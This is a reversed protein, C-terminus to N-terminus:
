AKRLQELMESEEWFQWIAPASNEIREDVVADLAANLALRFEPGPAYGVAILDKGSVCLDRLSFAQEQAMVEQLIRELNDVMALRPACCPAQSLTDARKMACLHSFLDTRGELKQIMRKVSRPTEQVVDDHRAILLLLDHAFARPMKLRKAVARAYAASIKAHGPFHGRGTEDPAWAAPKGADHLFAVWRDLPTNNIAAVCHAIHDYVTYIHYPTKQDFNWTAQLEPILLFMVDHYEGLLDYPAKGCLFLTLEKFIREQSIHSLDAACEHIAQATQEEITFELQSAFRLARLLRLADEKFRTQACGVCRIRKQALDLHGQYPDIIGTRPNFAIANITFDRRALDQEITQVFHVQAPHRHDCYEGDARFKTIELPFGNIIVTATGHKEGTPFAEYSSERFLSLIDLYPANTALDADHIPNGLLADRVFGGVLYAQYGASELTEIATLAAQFLPQSMSPIQNVALNQQM